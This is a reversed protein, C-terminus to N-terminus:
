IGVCVILGILIMAIGVRELKASSKPAVYGDELMQVSTQTNCGDSYCCKFLILSASAKYQITMMTCLDQSSTNPFSTSNLPQFGFVKNQNLTNCAISTSSNLGPASYCAEYVICVLNSPSSDNVVSTYNMSPANTGSLCILSAVSHFLFAFLIFILRM